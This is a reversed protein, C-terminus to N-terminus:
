GLANLDLQSAHGQPFAEGYVAPTAIACASLLPGVENVITYREPDIARLSVARAPCDRAGVYHLANRSAVAPHRCCAQAPLGETVGQSSCFCQARLLLSAM